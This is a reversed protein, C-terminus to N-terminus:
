EALRERVLGLTFDMAYVPCQLKPLIHAVAGFHDEHAHTIFVAEFRDAYNEIIDSYAFALDMGPYDDNLFTYGCDVLIFKGNCAYLFMNMGIDDAGGIPLFYLGDDDLFSM